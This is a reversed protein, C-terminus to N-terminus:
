RHERRLEYMMNGNGNGCLGRPHDMMLANYSLLRRQRVTYGYSEKLMYVVIAKPQDMVIRPNGM